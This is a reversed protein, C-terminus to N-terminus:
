AEVRVPKKPPATAADAAPNGPLRLGLIQLLPM